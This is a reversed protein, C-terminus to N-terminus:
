MEAIPPATAKTHPRTPAMRLLQTWVRRRRVPPEERNVTQCVRKIPTIRETTPAPNKIREESPISGVVQFYRERSAIM